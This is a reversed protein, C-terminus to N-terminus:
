TELASSPALVHYATMDDQTFANHRRRLRSSNTYKDRPYKEHRPVDNSSSTRSAPSAPSWENRSGARVRDLLRHARATRPVAIVKLGNPSPRTSRYPVIPATGKAAARRGDRRRMRGRARDRGAGSFWFSCAAAMESHGVDRGSSRTRSGPCGIKAFPCDLLLVAGGLSAM